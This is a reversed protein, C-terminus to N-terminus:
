FSSEMKRTDASKQADTIESEVVYAKIPQSYLTNRLNDIEDSKTPNEVMEPTYTAIRPTASASSTSGRSSKSRKQAKINAIQAVGAATVAAASIGGIIQGYPPPYAGSAQLFAGISGAITNIVAEAIRLGKINEFQEDADKDKISNANEQAKLDAEYYDALSGFLGGIENTTQQIMSYLQQWSDERLKNMEITHAVEGNEIEATLEAVMREAEVRQDATINLQELYGEWMLLEKEISEKQIQYSEEAFNLEDMKLIGTQSLKRQVYDNGAVYLKNYKDDVANLEQAANDRIKQIDEAFYRDRIEANTQYYNIYLQEAQNTLQEIMKVANEYEESPLLNNSKTFATVSKFHEIQANIQKLSNDYIESARQFELAKKDFNDIETFVGSGIFSDFDLGTEIEFDLKVTKKNIDKQLNDIEKDLSPKVTSEFLKIIEDNLKRKALDSSKLMVDNLKIKGYSLIRNFEASMRMMVADGFRPGVFATGDKEVVETMKDVIKIWKEKIEDEPLLNGLSDKFYKNIFEKDLGIKTLIENVSLGNLASAVDNAFVKLNTTTNSFFDDINKTFGKIYENTEGGISKGVNKYYESLALMSEKLQNFESTYTTSFKNAVKSQYDTEIKLLQDKAKKAAEEAKKKKDEEAKKADKDAKDKKDQYERDYSWKDRLAQKYEESNKDYMQLLNNFYDSYIQKAEETYKWDSGKQAEMDKIYDNLRTSEAEARKKIEAKTQRTIEAEKGAAYNAAVDYGDKVIDVANNVGEKFDDGIKGWKLTFIDIMVKGLTKAYNIAEKIPVLLVKSIANAVGAITAKVKNMAKTLNDFGGVAKGIWEVVKKWNAVLLAVLGLILGIPNAKMAANLGKQAVTAGETAVKEANTAVANAKEATSLTNTAVTVEKTGKLWNKLATSLGETRKIFGELGQLGQVLAMAQQVKLMAKAVDENESGFLGMAANVASFGAAMNSAIGRINSLQDGLDNSAYKLMEQQQKLNATIEAARSFKENYADTGPQLQELEVKLAKLEQKQSVYQGTVNKLAEEYSGVKRQNNGISSDMEKLQDNIEKIRAGIETRQAEDTVEKWVKKLSTMENQLANYSGTAASVEDKGARMVDTLQKEDEILKKLVDDYEKTGKDVNLLDDRLSKIENKLDKVSRASGETEIKILKVIEEQAM